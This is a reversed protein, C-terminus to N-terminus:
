LALPTHQEPLFLEEVLLELALGPEQKEHL